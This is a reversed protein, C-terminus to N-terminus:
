PTQVVVPVDYLYRQFGIFTERILKPSGFEAAADSITNYKLEVLTRMKSQALGSVGDEVFDYVTFYYKGDYMRTGDNATVRVCYDTNTTWGKQVAYQNIYDRVLGAHEQTACFAVALHTYLGTRKTRKRPQVGVAM